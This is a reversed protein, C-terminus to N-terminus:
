LKDEMASISMLTKKEKLAKETIGRDRLAMLKKHDSDKRIDEVGFAPIYMRKNMSSIKVRRDMPAEVRIYDENIEEMPTSKYLAKVDPM